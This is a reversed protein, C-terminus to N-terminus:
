KVKKYIFANNFFSYEKEVDSMPFRKDSDTTAYIDAFSKVMVEEFGYKKMM